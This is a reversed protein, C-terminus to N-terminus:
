LMISPLKEYDINFDCVLDFAPAQRTQDQRVLHVGKPKLAENAEAVLDSAGIDLLKLKGYSALLELTALTVPVNVISVAELSQCNRAIQNVGSDDIQNFLSFLLYL